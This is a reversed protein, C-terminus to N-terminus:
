GKFIPVPTLCKFPIEQTPNTIYIKKKKKLFLFLCNLMCAYIFLIRIIFTIGRSDTQQQYQLNDLMAFDIVLYQVQLHLDLNYKKSDELIALTRKLYPYTREPGMDNILMEPWQFLAIRNPYAEKRLIIDRSLISYWSSCVTAATMVNLCWCKCMYDKKPNHNCTLLSQFIALLLETPLETIRAPTHMISVFLFYSYHFFLSLSLSINSLLSFYFLTFSLKCKGFVSKPKESQAM